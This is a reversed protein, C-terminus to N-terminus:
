FLATEFLSSLRMSPFIIWHFILYKKNNNFMSLHTTTYTNLGIKELLVQAQLNSARWPPRELPDQGTNVSTEPIVVPNSGPVERRRTELTVVRGSTPGMSLHFFLTIQQFYLQLVLTKWFHRMKLSIQTSSIQIAAVDIIISFYNVSGGLFICIGCRLTNSNQSLVVQNKVEMVRSGYPLPLM